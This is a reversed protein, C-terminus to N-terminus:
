TSHSYQYSHPSTLRTSSNFWYVLVMAEAQMSLFCVKFSAYSFSTLMLHGSASISLSFLSGIGCNVASPKCNSTSTATTSWISYKIYM